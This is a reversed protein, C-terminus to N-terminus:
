IASSSPSPSRASARTRREGQPPGSPRKTWRSWNKEPTTSGAASRSSTPAPSSRPRNATTSTTSAPATAAPSTTSTAPAKPALLLVKEGRRQLFANLGQTTGHVTFGIGAPSDVVQDLAAFVGETLDRPTTSAKSAVYAGSAEDYAVVDTFTGGIDM